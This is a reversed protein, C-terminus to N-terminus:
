SSHILSNCPTHLAILKDVTFRGNILQNAETMCESQSCVCQFRWICEAESLSWLYTETIRHGGHDLHPGQCCHSPSFCLPLFCPPPVMLPTMQAMMLLCLLALTKSSSHSCASSRRSSSSMCCLCPQHTLAAHASSVTHAGINVVPCCNNPVWYNTPQM